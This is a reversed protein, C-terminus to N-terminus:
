TCAHRENRTRPSSLTDGHGDAPVPVGVHLAHAAEGWAVPPLNVAAVHRAGDPFYQVLCAHGTELGLRLLGAPGLCLADGLVARHAGAHGFVAVQEGPHRAAIRAVAPLVRAALDDLSEGGLPAFARDSWLAALDDPADRALDAPSKGEWAGFRRERLEPLHTVPLGLAAAAAGATARARDLDSAYLATVPLAALAAACAAAQRTGLGTLPPDLHGHFIGPRGAQGHRVLWLATATGGQPV